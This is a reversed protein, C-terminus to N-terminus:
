EVQTQDDADLEGISTWGYAHKSTIWGATEGPKVTATCKVQSDDDEDVECSVMNDFKEPPYTYDLQMWEKLSYTFTWTMPDGSECINKIVMWIRSDRNLETFIRDCGEDYEEKMTTATDIFEERPQVKRKPKVPLPVGPAVPMYQTELDKDHYVYM